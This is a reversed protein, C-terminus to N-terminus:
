RPLVAVALAEVCLEAVLQEISLDEVRELFGLDDDFFPTLVVVSDTRMASKAVSWRCGYLHAVPGGDVM